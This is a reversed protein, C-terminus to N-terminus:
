KYDVMQRNVSSDVQVVYAVCDQLERTLEKQVEGAVILLMERYCNPDKYHLTLSPPQFEELPSNMETTYALEM